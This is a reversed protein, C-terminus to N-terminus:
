WAFVIINSKSKHPKLKSNPLSLKSSSALLSEQIWKLLQTRPYGICHSSSSWLTRTQITWWKFRYESPNCGASITTCWAPPTCQIQIAMKKILSWQWVAIFRKFHTEMEQKKNKPNAFMASNRTRTGRPTTWHKGLMHYYDCWFTKCSDKNKIGLVGTEWM